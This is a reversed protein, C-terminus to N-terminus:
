ADRSPGAGARRLPSSRGAESRGGRGSTEGCSSGDLGVGSGCRPFRRGDVVRGRHCPSRTRGPSRGVRAPDDLQAGSRLVEVGLGGLHAVGGVARSRRGFSRLPVRDVGDALSMEDFTELEVHLGGVSRCRGASEERLARAADVQEVLLRAAVDVWMWQCVLRVDVFSLRSASPSADEVQQREAVVGDDDVVVPLLVRPGTGGGRARLSSPGAAAGPDGGGPAAYGAVDAEARTMARMAELRELVNLDARGLQDDAHAAVLEGNAQKRSCGIM